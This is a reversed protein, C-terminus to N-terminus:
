ANERSQNACVRATRTDLVCMCVAAIDVNFVCVDTTLKVPILHVAKVLIHSWGDDTGNTLGGEDM